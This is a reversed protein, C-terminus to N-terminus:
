NSVCLVLVCVREETKNQGALKGLQGSKHSFFTGPSFLGELQENAHQASKPTMPAPAPGESAKSSGEFLSEDDTLIDSINDPNGNLKYFQVSELFITASVLLSFRKAKWFTTWCL